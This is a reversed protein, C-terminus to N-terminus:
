KVSYNQLITKQVDVCAVARYESNNVNEIQYLCIDKDNNSKLIYFKLDATKEVIPKTLGHIVYIDVSIAQQQQKNHGHLQSRLIATLKLTEGHLGFM